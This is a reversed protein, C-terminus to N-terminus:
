VIEDLKLKEFISLYYNKIVDFFLINIAIFFQFM